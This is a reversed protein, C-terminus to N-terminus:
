TVGNGLIPKLEELSIINRAKPLKIKPQKWIKDDDSESEDDSVHKELKEKM